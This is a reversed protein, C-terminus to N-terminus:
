EYVQIAAVLLAAFLMALAFGYGALETGHGAYQVAAGGLALAGFLVTLGLGKDSTKTQTAM